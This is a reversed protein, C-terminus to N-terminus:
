HLTELEHMKDKFSDTIIQSQQIDKRLQPIEHSSIPHNLMGDHNDQRQQSIEYSNGANPALGEFDSLQLKHQHYIESEDLVSPDRQLENM